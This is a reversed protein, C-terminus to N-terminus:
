VGLLPLHKRKHYTLTLLICHKLQRLPLQDTLGFLIARNGSFTFCDSFLEKFTDILSTNCNFYLAYEDPKAPKWDMRLTSGQKTIYSPEGWKLTEDITKIEPSGSAVALVLSRLKMLKTRVKAPYADFVAAVDQDSIKNM